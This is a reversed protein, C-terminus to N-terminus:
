HFVKSQAIAVIIFDFVDDDYDYNLKKNVYVWFFLQLINFNM